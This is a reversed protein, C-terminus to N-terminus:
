NRKVKKAPCVANHGRCHLAATDAAGLLKAAKGGQDAVHGGAPCCRVGVKGKKVHGKKTIYSIKM